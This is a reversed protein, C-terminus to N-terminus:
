VTFMRGLAKARASTRAEAAEVEQGIEPPFLPLRPGQPDRNNSLHIPLFLFTSPPTRAPRKRSRSVADRLRDLLSKPPRRKLDVSHSDRHALM